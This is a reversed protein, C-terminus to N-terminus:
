HCWEEATGGRWWGAQGCAGGGLLGWHGGGGAGEPYGPAAGGQLPPQAVGARDADAGAAVPAFASLHPAQVAAVVVGAEGGLDAVLVSVAVVCVVGGAEVGVVVFGVEAAEDCGCPGSLGALLGPPGGADVGEHRRGAPLVVAAHPPVAGAVAEHGGPGAEVGLAAPHAAAHDLQDDLGPEELLVLAAVDDGRRVAAGHEADPLVVAGVEGLGPGGAVLGFGQGRHGAALFGGAAALCGALAHQLQLALGGAAAGLEQAAPFLGLLPVLGLQFGGALAPGVLLGFTLAGLPGAGSRVDVQRPGRHTGAAPADGARTVVAAEFDDEVVAVEGVVRVLDALVSLEM